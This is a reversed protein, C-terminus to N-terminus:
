RKLTEVSKDLEYAARQTEIKRATFDKEFDTLLRALEAPTEVPHFASHAAFTAQMQEFYDADDTRVYVLGGPTLATRCLEPFQENV